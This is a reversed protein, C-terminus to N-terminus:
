VTWTASVCYQVGLFKNFNNKALIKCLSVLINEVNSIWSQITLTSSTIHSTLTVPPNYYFLNLFLLTLPCDLKIM